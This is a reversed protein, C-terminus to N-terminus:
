AAKTACRTVVVADEFDLRHVLQGGTDQVDLHYDLKIRGERADHSIIERAERLTAAAVAEMDPLERGDPDLLLDQGDRLHFFYRAM